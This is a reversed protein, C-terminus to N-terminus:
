LADGVGAGAQTDGADCREQGCVDAKGGRIDICASGDAQSADIWGSSELSRCGKWFIKSGRHMIWPNVGVITGPPLFAGDLKLGSALIVREMNLGLVSHM